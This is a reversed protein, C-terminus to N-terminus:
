RVARPERATAALDPDRGDLYRPVEDLSTYPSCLDPGSSGAPDADTRGGNWDRLREVSDRVEEDRWMWTPSRAFAEWEGEGPTRGRVCADVRDADPWDAEVAVGGFGKKEVLAQTIRDRM